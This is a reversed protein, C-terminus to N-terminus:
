QFIAFISTADPNTAWTAVTAVKTSGVYGSVQRIQGVGTGAVIGIFMGTYADDTASASADLTITTAGGAQATACRGRFQAGYSGAVAHGTQLEDWVADAIAAASITSALAYGTKDVVTVTNVDLLDLGVLSDYVNNPLVVFEKVVPRAGAKHVLVTLNGVTDTDTADLVAYYTGGSINTAGGSNKSALTTAGAKHLKIDTNAISLGAEATFGDTEDVFVGLSIEQSATAARLIQAM